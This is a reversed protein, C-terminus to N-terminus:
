LAHLISDEGDGKMIFVEFLRATGDNSLQVKEFWKHVGKFRAELGEPISEPDDRDLIYARLSANDTRFLYWSAGLYEGLRGKIASTGALSSANASDVLEDIRNRGLCEALQQSTEPM